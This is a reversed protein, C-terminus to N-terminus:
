RRTGRSAGASCSRRTTSRRLRRLREELAKVLVEVKGTYVEERKDVDGDREFSEIQAKYGDLKEQFEVRQTKLKEEWLRHEANCARSALKMIEYMGGALRLLHM